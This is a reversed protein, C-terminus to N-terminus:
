QTRSKILWRKQPILVPYLFSVKFTSTFSPASSATTSGSSMEENRRSANARAANVKALAAAKGIAELAANAKETKQRHTEAQIAAAQKMMPYNEDELNNFDPSEVSQPLPPPPPPPPLPATWNPAVTNPNEIVFLREGAGPIPGNDSHSLPRVIKGLQSITAYDLPARVGAVDEFLWDENPVYKLTQVSDEDIGHYEDPAQDPTMEWKFSSRDLVGRRPISRGPKLVFDDQIRAM